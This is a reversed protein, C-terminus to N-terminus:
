GSRRDENGSALTWEVVGRMVRGLAEDFAAVIQHMEKGVAPSVAEFNESGVISLRPQKVLKVNLRVRVQPVEGSPYEAQFERLESKLNYDSRLGIAQRGVAVIRGSNEFSEVLLTQVMRPARSTWEAAEFYALRTPDPALAVKQSNLGGSAFPEEVVLQWDVAPLDARFSSKPTLTYLRPPPGLGLVNGCAALPLAALGALVSRRPPLRM